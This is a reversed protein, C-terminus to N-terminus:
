DSDLAGVLVCMGDRFFRQSTTFHTVAIQLFTKFTEGRLLARGNCASADLNVMYETLLDM